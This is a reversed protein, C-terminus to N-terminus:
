EKSEVGFEKRCRKCYILLPKRATAPQIVEIEHEGGFPCEDELPEDEDEGQEGFTPGDTAESADEQAWWRAPTDCDDRESM